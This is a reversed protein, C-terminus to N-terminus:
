AATFVYGNERPELHGFGKTALHTAAFPIRDTAIRDFLASRTHAAAAPDSDLAYRIAPNAFQLKDSVVTDALLLLQDGGGSLHIIQHGPTHGAASLLAVGNGVDTDGSHLTVQGRIADALSQILGILPKQDEAAATLLDPNTWFAWEAQQLHIEANPFLSTGNAVLGGIHDAHMHTVLIDTITAREASKEESAWSLCGTDAFRSQLWHGSGTDVLMRRERTEIRWTNAGFRTTPMVLTQEEASLNSFYDGPIDLHGDSLATIAINGVHRVPETESTQDIM